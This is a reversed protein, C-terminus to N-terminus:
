FYYLLLSLCSSLSVGAETISDYVNRLRTQEEKDIRKLYNLVKITRTGLKAKKGNGSFTAGM